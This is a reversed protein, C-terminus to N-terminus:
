KTGALCFRRTSPTRSGGKNRKCTMRNTQKERAGEAGKVTVQDHNRGGKRGAIEVWSSDFYTRHSYYRVGLSRAKECALAAAPPSRRAVDVGCGSPAEEKDETRVVWLEAPSRAGEKGLKSRHIEAGEV